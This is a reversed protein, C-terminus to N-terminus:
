EELLLKELRIRTIGLQENMAIEIETEPNNQLRIMLETLIEEASKNTANMIFIYGFKEKYLKNADALKQKLEGSADNVRSQESQAWAASDKDEAHLTEVNGIQPHHEFAERWDEETCENWKDEAYEFLDILDEVPFVTVMKEVWAKSGCCKFLQAKLEPLPTNDLDSIRM